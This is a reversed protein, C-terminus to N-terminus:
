RSSARSAPPRSPRSSRAAGTGPFGITAYMIAKHLDRKPAAPEALAPGALGAVVMGAGIKMAERRNCPHTM